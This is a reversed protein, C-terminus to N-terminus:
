NCSYFGMTKMATKAGLYREADWIRPETWDSDLVVIKKRGFVSFAAAAVIAHGGANKMGVKRPIWLRPDPTAPNEYDVVEYTSETMNPGIDFEMLVPKGQVAKKYIFDAADSGTMFTMRKCNFGFRKGYNTMVSNMTVRHDMYYRSITEELLKTRGEETTSAQGFAANGHYGAWYMQKWFHTIAFAACTGGYQDLPKVVPQTRGPSSSFKTNRTDVMYVRTKQLDLFLYDTAVGNHKVMRGMFM